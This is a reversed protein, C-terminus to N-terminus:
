AGEHSTDTFQYMLSPYLQVITVIENSNYEANTYVKVVNTEPFSLLLQVIKLPIFIVTM